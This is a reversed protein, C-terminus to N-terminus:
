GLLAQAAANIEEPIPEEAIWGQAPYDRIRQWEGLLQVV